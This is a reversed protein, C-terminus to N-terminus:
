KGEDGGEEKRGEGPRQTSHAEKRKREGEVGSVITTNGGWLCFILHADLPLPSLLSLSSVRPCRSKLSRGRFFPLHARM